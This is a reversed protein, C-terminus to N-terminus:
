HGHITRYEDYRRDLLGTIMGAGFAIQQAGLIRRHKGTAAGIIASVSGAFVELVGRVARRFLRQRSPNRRRLSRSLTQGRRYERRILWSEVVRSAPIAEYVIARDSWAM